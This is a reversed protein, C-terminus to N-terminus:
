VAPASREDKGIRAYLTAGLLCSWLAHASASVREILGATPATANGLFLWFLVLIVAGTKTSYAAWGRWRSAVERLAGRGM